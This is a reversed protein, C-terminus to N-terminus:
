YQGDIWNRGDSQVKQKTVFSLAVSNYLFAIYMKMFYFNRVFGNYRINSRLNYITFTQLIASLLQYNDVFVKRM